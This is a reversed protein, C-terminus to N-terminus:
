FDMDPEQQTTQAEVEMEDVDEIRNTASNFKIYGALGTNGTFRCKLVRLKLRNREDPDDAQQNREAAIITDPLQKLSGSGRLDDLGIMGGREFAIAHNDTKRLHSIIIMGAGTEEVLSRLSTMLADIVKREDNGANDIATAAITIHDLVVFACGEAVILYRVMDLLARGDCAGFHDYLVFNGDEFVEDYHAKAMEQTDKNSWSLHLPKKCHISLIDRVTKKPSEELMILGIKLGDKMKLKYAIERAMTSKGIGSGATLLLMEGRRMGQTMKTLGQCWPYDYSELADDDADFLAEKLENGNVIGEPRYESANWIAKIILDPKGAQLAENADKYPAITAIKLKHPPLIGCISKVAEKGADDSDFLVIVEEFNNLWKLNRKFCEAASTSGHPISVVPYKNEQVQSVTMCDIEGETIVLKRGGTFLWQGFFISQAKGLVFFKKDQTRCKQWKLNGDADYYQAIQVTQGHLHGVGYSYKRCTEETLKRTNLDKYEIDLCYDGVNAKMFEEGETKSNYAPTPKTDGGGTWTWKHCSFCYTHQEYQTLADHSGCDPCPLHARITKEEEGGGDASNVLIKRKDPIAVGM